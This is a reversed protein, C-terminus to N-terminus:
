RIFINRRSLDVRGNSKPVLNVLGPKAINKVRDIPSIIARNQLAAVVANRQTIYSHKGSIVILDKSPSPNQMQSTIKDFTTRDWRPAYKDDIKRGDRRVNRAFSTEADVQLWITIFEAGNKNALNKLAARSKNTAIDTDYIVSLGASLFEETMYTMLQSTIANEQKDYRPKEFLEARIRDSQLHAVVYEDAFQRAFYTRGSGPYGYFVILFTKQPM